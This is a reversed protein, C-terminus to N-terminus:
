ELGEVPEPADEPMDTPEEQQYVDGTLVHVSRM